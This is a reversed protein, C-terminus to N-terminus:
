RVGLQASFSSAAYPMLVPSSFLLLALAAAFRFRL